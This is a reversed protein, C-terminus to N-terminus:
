GEESWLRDTSRLRNLCHRLDDGFLDTVRDVGYSARIQETLREARDPYKNIIRLVEARMENTRVQEADQAAAQAAIANSMEDASAMSSDSGIGLMGLARGVASTECNEVYSTKNIYNSGKSEYATGTALVRGTEDAITAKMVVTESDMSVVETTISGDPVLMRFAQVRSAVMTYAKGKFDVKPLSQNLKEISEFTLAM